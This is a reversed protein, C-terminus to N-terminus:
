QRVRYVEIILGKDVDLKRLYEKTYVPELDALLHLIIMGKPSMFYAREEEKIDATALVDCIAVLIKAVQDCSQLLYNMRTPCFTMLHVPKMELFQLADNLIALSKGSQQFHRLITRYFPLFESVYDVNMTKSNVMRKITGDAAHVVCRISPSLIGYKKSLNRSACMNTSCGDGNINVPWNEATLNIEDKTVQDVSCIKFVQPPIGEPMPINENAKSLSELMKPVKTFANEKM